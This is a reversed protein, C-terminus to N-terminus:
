NKKVVYVSTTEMQFEVLVLFVLQLTLSITSKKNKKKLFFFVNPIYVTSQLNPVFRFLLINQTFMYHVTRSTGEIKYM